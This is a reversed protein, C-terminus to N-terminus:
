EHAELFREADLAAQCGMGAATVAQRYIKDTVDGSVFVGEVSTRTTGPPAVIYGEDDLELQGKFVDTNPDHGIAMFVGDTAFDEAEDTLVNRLVVGTVTDDGLIEEVVSNWRVEVKPHDLVRNAM